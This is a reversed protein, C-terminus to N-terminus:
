SIVQADALLQPLFPEGPIRQILLASVGLFAAHVIVLCTLSPHDVVDALSAPGIIHGPPRQVDLVKCLQPLLLIEARVVLLAVTHLLCVDHEHRVVVHHLRGRPLIEPNVDTSADYYEILRM